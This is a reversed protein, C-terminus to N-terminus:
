RRLFGRGRGVKEALKDSLAPNKLSAKLDTVLQSEQISDAKSTSVNNPLSTFRRISSYPNFSEMEEVKINKTCLWSCSEDDDKVDQTAPASVESKLLPSQHKITQM